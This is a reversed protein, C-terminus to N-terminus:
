HVSVPVSHSAMLWWQASERKEEVAQNSQTDLTTHPLELEVAFEVNGPRPNSDWDLDRKRKKEKEWSEAVTLWHLINKSYSQRNILMLQWQLWMVFSQRSQSEFGLGPFTSNSTSSSTGCCAPVSSVCDFWAAFSSLSLARHSGM